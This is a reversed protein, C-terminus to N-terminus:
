IKLQKWDDITTIVDRIEMRYYLKGEILMEYECNKDFLIKDGNKLGAAKANDSLLAAIGVKEIKENPSKTSLLLGKKEKIIGTDGYTVPEVLIFNGLTMLENNRIRCYVQTREVFSLDGQMSLKQEPANVFHHVYIIDKPELEELGSSIVEAMHITNWYHRFMSDLIFEQGGVMVVDNVRKEMSVITRGNITKM